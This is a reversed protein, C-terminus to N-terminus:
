NEKDHKPEYGVADAKTDSSYVETIGPPTVAEDPIVEANTVSPGTGTWADAGISMLVSLIAGGLSMAAIESWDATRVDLRDAGVTVIAVQAATRIAREASAKWFGGGWIGTM